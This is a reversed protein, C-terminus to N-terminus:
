VVWCSSTGVIWLCYEWEGKFNQGVFAMLPALLLPNM